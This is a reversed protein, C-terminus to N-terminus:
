MLVVISLIILVAGFILYVIRAGNRGFLSLFVAAKRSEFFFNWNFVAALIMYLGLLILIVASIISSSALMAPRLLEYM